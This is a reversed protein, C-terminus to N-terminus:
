LCSLFFTLLLYLYSKYNTLRHWEKKILILIIFGSTITILFFIGKTMVACASALAALWVYKMKDTAYLKYLYYVAALMCATLYHEARVDFLAIVSQFATAYIVVAVTATQRNYIAKGLQYLFYIGTLWFLFAPLKYAFATTGFIKFSIAIIWFPFHPKDLWDTNNFLNVFDNNQAMQKAIYAYVASDPEIVGGLLGTANVVIVTLLLVRYKM